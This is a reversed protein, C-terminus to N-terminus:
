EEFLFSGEEGKEDKFKITIMTVLSGDKPRDYVCSPMFSDKTVSVMKLNGPFAGLHKWKGDKMKALVVWPNPSIKADDINLVAFNKDEPQRLKVKEYTLM